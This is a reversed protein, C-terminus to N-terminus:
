FGHQLLFLAKLPSSCISFVPEAATSVLPGEAKARLTGLLDAIKELFVKGSLGHEGVAEDLAGLQYLKELEGLTSIAKFLEVGKLGSGPTRRKSM